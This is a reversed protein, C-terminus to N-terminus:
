VARKAIAEIKRGGLATTAYDDDIVKLLAWMKDKSYIIQPTGNANDVELDVPFGQAKIDMIRQIGLINFNPQQRINNLKVLARMDATCHAIFEASNTMPILQIVQQAAKVGEQKIGEHFKFLTLFNRKDLVLSKGDIIFCHVHKDFLFTPETVADFQNSALVRSLVKKRTLEKKSNYKALFHVKGLTNDELTIVYGHLKTKPFKKHDYMPLSNLDDLKSLHVSLTSQTLDVFPLEGSPVAVTPNFAALNDSGLREITEDICTLGIEKFTGTLQNDLSLKHFNIDGTKGDYAMFTVCVTLSATPTNKWAALQTLLQTKATM